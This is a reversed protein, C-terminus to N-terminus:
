TFKHLAGSVSKIYVKLRNVNRLRTTNKLAWRSLKEVSSINHLQRLAKGVVYVAEEGTEHENLIYAPYGEIEETIILTYSSTEAFDILKPVPFLQYLMRIINQETAIELAANGTALKLFLGSGDPESLRYIDAGLRGSIHESVECKSLLEVIKKPTDSALHELLETMIIMTTKTRL